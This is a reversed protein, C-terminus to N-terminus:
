MKEVKLSLSCIVPEKVWTNAICDGTKEPLKESNSKFEERLVFM